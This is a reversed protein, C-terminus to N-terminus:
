THRYMWHIFVDRLSDNDSKILAMKLLHYSPDSKLKRKEKHQLKNLQSEQKAHSLDNRLFPVDQPIHENYIM